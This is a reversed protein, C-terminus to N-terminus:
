EDNEPFHKNLFDRLKEPATIIISAAPVLVGGGDEGGTWEVEAAQMLVVSSYFHSYRKESRAIATQTNSLSTAEVFERKSM